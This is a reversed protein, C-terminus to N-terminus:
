KEEPLMVVTICNGSKLMTKMVRRIDKQSIAALTPLYRGQEDTGHCYWEQMYSLWASNRNRNEDFTKQMYQRIRQMYEAPIGERAVREMEQHMVALCTDYMEPKVSGQISLVYEWNGDGAERLYGGVGIGYSTGLEERISKTYSMDLAQGLISMALDDRLSKGPAKAHLTVVAAAVPQEMVTKYINTVNGKRMVMDTNVPKDNRKVVPLAALYRCCYEALTDEDFTGAFLFTFDSADAFRDGWIELARAYDMDRLHEKRLIINRPHSGYMTSCVSDAYIQMPDNEKGQLMTYHQALLNQAADTDPQLPMFQLYALQMMTELDQRSSGGAIYEYRSGMSGSAQAQKGALMKRLDTQRHGGLRSVSCLEGALKLTLWDGSGYRSTGGPSFAQMLIENDNYTTPLMVVRVGNSLILERSGAYKGPRSRVITGPEPMKGLLAGEAVDEVYAEAHAEMGAKVALLLSDAEPQACGDKDPNMALLVMNRLDRSFMRAFMANVEELTVGPLISRYAAVEDELSVIPEGHLFNDLCEQVFAQNERKNRNQYRLEVSSLLQARMRDLESQLFGHDLIGCVERVAATVAPYTMGEKPVVYLDTCKAVKSLLFDGEDLYAALYPTEPRLLIEQMRAEFLGEAMGKVLSHRLYEVTNKREEEPWLPRHKQMLSVVAMTQEPDREAVVIPDENDDVGYYIREAPNEPMTIPSFMDRIAAETRDVDIDGVVIVAQLDPRYWRCYYDRLAQYPFSDVVSMLGIPMRNGPRSDSMLRPLCRDLMRMQASNRQRWEEHIVGREKDIEGEELALDCSWDHLILLVSDVTSVRGTPVNNINYVTEDISTYANLQEGFKVGIGELYRLLADGPYHTTGNFCMHELFHALGRQHEEEQVSGVKQAIYFDAQGPTKVNGRVYYTLGNPLRGKRTVSDQALPQAVAVAVVLCLTQITLIVRNRM